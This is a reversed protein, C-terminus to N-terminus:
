CETLCCRSGAWAMGQSAYSGVVFATTNSHRTTLVEGVDEGVTM